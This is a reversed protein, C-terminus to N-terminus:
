GVKIAKEILEEVFHFKNVLLFVTFAILFFSQAIVKASQQRVSIVINLFLALILYALMAYLLVNGVSVAKNIKDRALSTEEVSVIIEPAVLEEIDMAEGAVTGTDKDDAITVSAYPVQASGSGEKRALYKSRPEVSGFLEVLVTTEKDAINGYAVGIGVENYRDNLVIKRHSPSRLLANHATDPSMFGMALNEGAAMYRYEGRDIFAWPRKGDPTTHSFYSKEIMDRAKDNAAASLTENEELAHFGAEQRSFNALEIMREPVTKILAAPTPYALFLASTVAIKVALIIGLYKALNRPRLSHPRFLNEEHPIFLDKLSRRIDHRVFRLEQGHACPKKKSRGLFLLATTACLGVKLLLSFIGKKKSSEKM